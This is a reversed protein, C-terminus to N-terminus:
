GRGAELSLIGRALGLHTFYVGRETREKSTGIPEGEEAIERRSMRVYEKEQRLANPLHKRILAAFQETTEVKAQRLEDLLAAYDEGEERNQEPLTADLLAKLSETNLPADAASEAIDRTYEEREALVREFELDVTELLAAVRNITRQLPPPVHSEKKYQLVHSASAWIHQSGTRVQLEARLGELKGLTPVDLWGDPPQIEYHISGYGFRQDGLRSFTDEKHLVSFNREVLQQISTLDRRFLAIVRIGAVDRVDALSAAQVGKRRIKEAISAWSKVRWEIASSLEIGESRLLEQIQRVIESCLSEYLPAKLEYEHRLQTLAREDLSM